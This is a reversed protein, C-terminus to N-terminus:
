AERIFETARQIRGVTEEKGLVEMVEFLGPSATKGTLALRIPPAIQKMKLGTQDVLRQFVSELASHDWGSLETLRQTLLKLIPRMELTFFKRVGERPYSLEEQFYFDAAEAM